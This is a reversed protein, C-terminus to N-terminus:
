GFALLFRVLRRTRPGFLADTFWAGGARKSAESRTPYPAIAAAMGGIKHRHHIMLAWPLIMEGAHAAAIAAGLVRARRTTVVKILGDHRREAQARDNEAFPWRVVKCDPHRERAEAESLGVQAVEPDTYTCWPVARYDVKAPLRFLARRIVIGAQYSAMHTFQYPGAVDGIAFVRRNTTRLGADVAITRPGTEIGAEALGLGEMNARRGVAVLLHSGAIRVTEGGRGAVVVPGSDSAEVATVGTGLSFEIGEAELRKMAVEATEPDDKVFPRRKEIVTVRSGLRRHAQAMEMGIPGGGIVILHDPRERNDFVTENTFFPVDALGPIPPVVPSSGTAVVFRRARVEVDGAVVRDPAVFRGHAQIVRVGFGEFREVSDNPAIAAIVEHVHDHVRAFDIEPEVSAVGFASAERFTQAVHGSALLSKSPVCGYNLCDGGMKGREILVVRAGMQSAGAAVSLGGSGAGIVCIDAKVTEAM